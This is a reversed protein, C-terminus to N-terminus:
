AMWREVAMSWRGVTMSYACSMSRVVVRADGDLEVLDVRGASYERRLALGDRVLAVATDRALRAVARVGDETPALMDGHPWTERQVIHAHGREILRDAVLLPVDDPAPPQVVASCLVAASWRQYGTWGSPHGSPATM